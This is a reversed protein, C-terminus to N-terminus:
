VAYLCRYVPQGARMAFPHPFQLRYSLDPMGVTSRLKHLAEQSAAVVAILRADSSVPEEIRVMEVECNYLAYAFKGEFIGVHAYGNHRQM